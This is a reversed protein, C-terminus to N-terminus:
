RKKISQLLINKPTVKLKDEKIESLLTKLEFFNSIIKKSKKM